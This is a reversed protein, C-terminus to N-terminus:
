PEMNKPDSNNFVLAGRVMIPMLLPFGLVRQSMDAIHQRLYPILTMVAVENSFAILIEESLTLNSLEKIKYAAGVECRIIGTPLELDVALRILFGSGDLKSATQLNYNPQVQVQSPVQPNEVTDRRKASLEFAVIEVLEVNKIFLELTESLM